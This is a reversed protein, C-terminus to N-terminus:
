IVKGNSVMKVKVNRRTCKINNNKLQVNRPKKSFLIPEVSAANPSFVIENDTIEYTINEDGSILLRRLEIYNNKVCLRNGDVKISSGAFVGVPHTSPSFVKNNTIKTNYAFSVMTAATCRFVNGDVVENEGRCLIGSQYDGEITNNRFVNGFSTSHGGIASGTREKNKEQYFYCGRVENYRSEYDGSFDVGRRNEYFHCNEIVIRTGDIIQIGYSTQTNSYYSGSIVSNRVTGSYGGLSLIVDSGEMSRFNCKDILFDCGRLSLGTKNAFVFSCNSLIFKQPKFIRYQSSVRHGSYLRTQSFYEFKDAIFLSKGKMESIRSIIGKYLTPIGKKDPRSDYRTEDSTKIEILYGKYNEIDEEIGIEGAYRKKDGVPYCFGSAVPAQWYHIPFSTYLNLNIFHVGALSELAITEKAIYNVGEFDIQTNPLKKFDKKYLERRNGVVWSFKIPCRISSIDVNEFIKKSPANMGFDGKIGGNKLGGHRRFLLVVHDPIIVTEGGLDFIGDIEYVTNSKTVQDSFSRKASLKVIRNSLMYESQETISNHAILSFFSLFLLAKVLM